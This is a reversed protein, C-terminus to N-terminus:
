QAAKAAAQTAAKPAADPPAEFRVAAGDTLQYAGDTVLPRAPDLNGKLLDQEDRTIQLQVPIRVAHGNAVQFVALTKGAETVAAGPVLWGELQGVAIDARVAVGALLAGDPVSIDVDVLRTRPNLQGDLRVVRGTVASSPAGPPQLAALTVSQGPHVRGLLAPEVGVTAIMGSRLALTLLPAGPQLREGPTAPITQVVGDFPATLKQMASGAGERRLADLTSQADTVAKEAQALQDRTALHQALLQSAHQRQALALSLATQAQRFSSAAQASAGFEILLQGSSVTEGPTVAVRMVRGDQQLSLSMISDFGYATSGYATVIDDMVGTRAPATHVLVTPDPTDGAQAAADTAADMTAIALGLRIALRLMDIVRSM